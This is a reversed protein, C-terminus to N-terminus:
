CRCASCSLLAFIASSSASLFGLYQQWSRCTSVYQRIVLERIRQDADPSILFRDSQSRMSASIFGPVFDGIM